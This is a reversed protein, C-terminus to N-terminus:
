GISPQQPSAYESDRAKTAFYCLIFIILYSVAQVSALVAVSELFPVGMSYPLAVATTSAVLRVADWVFLTGQRELVLLSRSIPTVVFQAFYGLVMLRAVEGSGEWNDGFVWAFIDPGGVLVIGVPVLGAAALNLTVKRTLAALRPSRSRVNHALTGEFYQSVADAVIGVPAALVRVTLAFLGAEVSGYLGIILLIPIQLGMANLLRSFTSILPFKRYRWATVGLSNPEGGSLVARKVYRTMGVLGAVRGVLISSILGFPTMGLAGLSVSSVAQAVGQVGNRVALGEYRRERVLWSSLVAFIGVSFATMPVVWWFAIFIDSGVTRAVEERFVYAAAALVSALIAASYMTLRVLTRAVGDEEPIVVARDWSLTIVAGVIGTAATVVAFAGFDSPSYLRTM